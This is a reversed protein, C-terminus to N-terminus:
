RSINEIIQYSPLSGYHAAARTYSEAKVPDAKVGYGHRYIQALRENVLALVNRPLKGNKAIPEYYRRAQKFNQNLFEGNYNMSGLYFRAWDDGQEAAKERAKLSPLFGDKYLPDNKFRKGTQALEIMELATTANLGDNSPDSAQNHRPLFLVTRAADEGLDGAIYLWFFSDPYSIPGGASARLNFGYLEMGRPYGKLAAQHFYERAKAYDPKVGYGATYMSGLAADGFGFKMPECAELYQKATKYDGHTFAYFGLYAYADEVGAAAAKKILKIGKAQEPKSPSSFALIVGRELSGRPDFDPILGLIRNALEPSWVKHYLAIDVVEDIGILGVAAKQRVSEYVSDERVKRVDADRSVNKPAAAELASVPIASALILMSLLLTIKKM